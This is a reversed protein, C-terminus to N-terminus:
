DAPLQPMDSRYNILEIAKKRGGEMGGVMHSLCLMARDHRTASEDDLATRDVAHTMNQLTRRIGLYQQEGRHECYRSAEDDQLIRIASRRVCTIVDLGRSRLEERVTQSFRMVALGYKIDDRKLGTIHELTEPQIISGKQLSDFDIPYITTEM